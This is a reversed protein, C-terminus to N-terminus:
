LDTDTCVLPSASVCADSGSVAQALSDAIRGAATVGEETGTDIDLMALAALDVLHAVNDLTERVSQETINSVVEVRALQEDRVDGRRNILSVATAVLLILSGVLAAVRVIRM